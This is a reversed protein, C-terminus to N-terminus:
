LVQRSVVIANTPKRKRTGISIAVRCCGQEDHDDDEHEDENEDEADESDEDDNKMMMMMRMMGMRMMRRIRMMRKTRMMTRMLENRNGDSEDDDTEKMTRTLLRM